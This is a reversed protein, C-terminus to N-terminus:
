DGTDHPDARIRQNEELKAVREKLHDLEEEQNLRRLGEVKEVAGHCLECIGGEEPDVVYLVYGEGVPLQSGCRPCFEYKM